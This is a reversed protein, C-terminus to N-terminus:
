IDINHSNRLVNNMWYQGVDAEQLDFMSCSSHFQDKKAASSTLRNSYIFLYIIYLLTYIYGAGTHGQLWVCVLFM